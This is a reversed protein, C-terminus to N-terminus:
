RGGEHLESRENCLAGFTPAAHVFDGGGVGEYIGRVSALGIAVRSGIALTPHAPSSGRLDNWNSDVLLGDLILSLNEAPHFLLGECGLFRPVCFKSFVGRCDLICFGLRLVACKNGHDRSRDGGKEKENDEVKVDAFEDMVEFHVENSDDEAKEEEESEAIEEWRNRLEIENELPTRSQTPLFQISNRPKNGVQPRHGHCQM